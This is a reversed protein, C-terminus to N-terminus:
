ISTFIASIETDAFANNIDDARLKPNNYLLVAEDRAHPLEKIKFGLQL